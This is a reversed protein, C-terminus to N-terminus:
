NLRSVSNNTVKSGVVKSGTVLGFLSSAQLNQVATAGWGTGDNVEFIFSSVGSDANFTADNNVVVSGTGSISGYAIQDGGSIDTTSTLRISSPSAPTVINVYNWGAQPSFTIAYGASYAGSNDKVFLYATGYKLSGRVNTITISTDSWNTVTQTAALPDSSSNTPSLIVAGSGQTAGFTSGTIVAGTQGKTLNPASSITPSGGGVTGDIYIAIPGGGSSSDTGPSVNPVTPYTGSNNNLVDSTTTGNSLYYPSSPYGGGSSQNAMIGLLYTTGSVISASLSGTVFADTASLPLLESTAAILTGTSTWIALKFKESTRQSADAGAIYMSISTATGTQSAVFSKYRVQSNVAIQRTTTFGTTNNSGVLLTM